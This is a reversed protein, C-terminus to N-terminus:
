KLCVKFECNNIVTIILVFIYSNLAQSSSYMVFVSICILMGYFYISLYFFMPM